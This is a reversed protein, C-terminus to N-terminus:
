HVSTPPVGLFRLDVFAQSRDETRECPPETATPSPQGLQRKASIDQCLTEGVANIWADLADARITWLVADAEPNTAIARAHERLDILVQLSQITLANIAM